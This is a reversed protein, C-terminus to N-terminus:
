GPIKGKLGGYHNGKCFVKNTWIFCTKKKSTLSVTTPFSFSLVIREMARAGHIYVSVKKFYNCSYKKNKNRGGM